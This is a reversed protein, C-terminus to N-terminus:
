IKTLKVLSVSSHGSAVNKLINAIDKNANIQNKVWDRAGEPTHFMFVQAVDAVVFFGSIDNGEDDKQGECM